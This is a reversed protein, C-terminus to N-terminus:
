KNKKNGTYTWGNNLLSKDNYYSWKISTKAPTIISRTSTSKYCVEGYIPETSYAINKENTSIYVKINKNVLPGCSQPKLNGKEKYSSVKEISNNLKFSSYTYKPSQINSYDASIFVYHTNVTDSLPMTSTIKGTYVWSGVSSTSSSTIGEVTNYDTLTNTVYIINNIVVYNYYQCALQNTTTVKKIANRNIYNPKQYTGVQIQKTEMKTKTLCNYDTDSCDVAKTSCSEKVSVSWNSWNSMVAKSIYKYEYLYQNDNTPVEVNSNKDDTITENKKDNEEIQANEDTDNAVSKKQCLYTKCYDFKGLHYLSYDSKDSCVLNVKLLYNDNTMTLQIYSKKVDCQKKSTDKLNSIINKDIMEKLSLKLSENDKQPINDKVYYSLASNKMKKTNSTFQESIEEKSIKKTSHKNIVFKSVIWIVLLIVVLFAMLKLIINRFSYGKPEFEETYM